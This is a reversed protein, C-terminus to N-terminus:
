AVRNDPNPPKGQLFDVAQQAVWLASREQTEFTNGAVHPTAIVNPLTLLPHDRPPPEVDWVDLGAGFLHGDKMAAYLAAEDVVGGRCTNVLIANKKMLAIQKTSILHRTQDNLPVHLTVLDAEKLLDELSSKKEFPFNSVYPDYGIVRADFAAAWKRGVRSGINGVGVVGVTKGLTEVALVDPRTIKEGARIRRDLETVRRAVSLGLALAIEAVADSNVGPTRCVIIGRKKAAAVDVTDYGVGQKSIFRLKKARALDTATLVTMRVMLADAEEPWHTVRPDDWRVTEFHRAAYDVGAPHLPDLIFIKM